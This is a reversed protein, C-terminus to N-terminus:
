IDCNEKEEAYEGFWKHVPNACAEPDNDYAIDGESDGKDILNEPALLNWSVNGSEDALTKFNAGFGWVGAEGTVGGEGWANYGEPAWDIETIAVPAIDAVPKINEAWNSRFTVPDNNDEGWYGPYIHVSYGINDGEIPNNAYGKYHSQYGSGPIWIVNEFGNNRIMDVLPQFFLKLKDFHPQTNSGWEGNTGLIHIPENALEFMVHESNKLDEHKSLYGWVTKLYEHYEDDVNIREPCVGPPRLIVYMGRSKAHEVLPLIVENVGEVFRDFNFESIDNEGDVEAGPNNSWYPDIHLRVMNLYWGDEDKNTLKDMVSKNYDLAGEVDYNNWRWEGVHGGNFWPNPTMAVGHLLVKEGCTNKLYRGEVNLKPTNLPWEIDISSDDEETQDDEEAVPNEEVTEADDPLLNDDASCGVIIFLLIILVSVRNLGKNVLM